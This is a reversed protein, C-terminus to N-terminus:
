CLEGEQRWSLRCFDGQKCSPPFCLCLAPAAQRKRLRTFGEAEPLGLRPVHAGATPLSGVTAELVPGIACRPCPAPLSLPMPAAVGEPWREGQHRSAAKTVM